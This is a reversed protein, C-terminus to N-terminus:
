LPVMNRIEFVRTAYLDVAEQSSKSTHKDSQLYFFHLPM